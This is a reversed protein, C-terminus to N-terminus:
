IASQVNPPCYHKTIHKLNYESCNDLVAAICSLHEFYNPLLGCRRNTVEQTRDQGGDLVHNRAGMHTMGWVADQDIRGNKCLTDTHGNVLVCVPVCVVSRAVYTAIPRMKHVSHM